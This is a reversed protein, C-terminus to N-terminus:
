TANLPISIIWDFGSLSQVRRADAELAALGTILTEEVVDLSQFVRNSFHKERLEEWLHEVPNCQPSYPPLWDLALNDPARLAKATHWGAQDMLMIVFEKDHRRAVEDLFLQMMATNAEPLILSDLVGDHPSLAAFAYLSERVAQAGVQPRVGPPAWCRRPDSLRGFRGEDQFMLRLPRGRAAQALSPRSM